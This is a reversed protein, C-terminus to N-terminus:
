GDRMLFANMRKRLSALSNPNGMTSQTPEDHQDIECTVEVRPRERLGPRPHTQGRKQQHHAGARDMVGGRLVLGAREGEVMSM